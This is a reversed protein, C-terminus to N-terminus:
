GRIEAVVRAPAGDLALKIPFAYVIFEKGQLAELNRLNEIILIDNGLLLKHVAFPSRDPSCMDLGVASVKKEILYEAIEETLVPYTDFYSADHYQADMGTHVLVIDGEQIEADKFSEINMDSGTRVCVGRGVFREVPFEHLGRGGELMHAPADIHTGVHTGVSVYHDCYGDKGLEGASRIATKPDGPYVPTHEDLLVSLDIFRPM